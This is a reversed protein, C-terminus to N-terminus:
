TLRAVLSAAGNASSTDDVDEVGLAVLMTVEPSTLTKEDCASPGPLLGKGDPHLRPATSSAGVSVSAAASSTAAASPDGAAPGRACCRTGGDAGDNANVVIGPDSSEVVEEVHLACDLHECRWPAHSRSPRLRARVEAVMESVVWGVGVVPGLRESQGM